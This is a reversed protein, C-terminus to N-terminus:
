KGGSCRQIECSFILIKPVELLVGSFGRKLLFILLFVTVFIFISLLQNEVVFDEVNLQYIHAYSYDLHSTFSATSLPAVLKTILAKSSYDYRYSKVIKYKAGSRNILCSHDTVGEINLILQAVVSWEMETDTSCFM